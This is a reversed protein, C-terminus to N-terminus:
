WGIPRGIRQEIAMPNWPVDFNILTNCFQINRGEGGRGDIAAMALGLEFQEKRALLCKHPRGRQHPDQLGLVFNALLIIRKFNAKRPEPRACLRPNREMAGSRNATARRPRGSERPRCLGAAPWKLQATSSKRARWELHSGAGVRLLGRDLPEARHDRHGREAPQPRSVGGFMFCVHKGERTSVTHICL